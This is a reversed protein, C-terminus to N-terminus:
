RPAEREVVRRRHSRAFTPMKAPDIMAARSPAAVSAGSACRTASVEDGVIRERGSDIEGSGTRRM